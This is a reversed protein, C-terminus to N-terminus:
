HDSRAERRQKNESCIPSEFICPLLLGPKFFLIAPSPDFCSDIREFWHLTHPSCRNAQIAFTKSVVRKGPSALEHSSDRKLAKKFLEAFDDCWNTLSGPSASRM